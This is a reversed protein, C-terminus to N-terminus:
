KEVEPVKTLWVKHGAIRYAELLAGAAPGLEPPGFRNGEELEVLMRFRERLLNSRFVGGLYAVRAREGDGFLQRGVSATLTALVQASSNLLERAVADGETAAEDVLNALAAIRPRPWDVTYFRHLM